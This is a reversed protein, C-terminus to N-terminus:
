LDGEPRRQCQPCYFASRQGFVMREIPAACVDCAEGERGYVRLRAAYSGKGGDVRRYDRLTTGGSAIAERLVARISRRLLRVSASPTLSAPLAPHLGALHLAELAYINGIGAVRRQDLLWSRLPSKSRALTEVLYSLTFGSGLPEPGLGRSWTAYEPPDLLRIRGFRRIDHYVLSGGSGLPWIVAPHSPGPETSDAPRHLLRGSMGLNIMVSMGDDLIMRINKGRREVGTVTRGETGAALAGSPGEVVDARLVNPHGLSTGSLIPHLGQVITEAEPLEPM